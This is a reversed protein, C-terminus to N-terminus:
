HHRAIIVHGSDSRSAEEAEPTSERSGRGRRGGKKGGVADETPEQVRKTRGCWPARYWPASTRIYVVVNNHVKADSVYLAYVCMCVCALVCVDTFCRIILPHYRHERRRIYERVRLYARMRPPPPRSHDESCFTGFCFAMIILGFSPHDLNGRNANGCRPSSVVSRM